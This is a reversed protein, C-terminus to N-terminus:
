AEVPRGRKEVVKEGMESPIKPPNRTARPNASRNKVTEYDLSKRPSNCNEPVYRRASNGRMCEKTTIEPQANKFNRHGPRQIPGAARRSGGAPDSTPDSVSRRDLPGKPTAYPDAGPIPSFPCAYVARPILASPLRQAIWRIRGAYGGAAIATGHAHHGRTTSTRPDFQAHDPCRHSHQAPHRMPVSGM